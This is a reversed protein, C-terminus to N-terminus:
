EPWGGGGPSYLASTQLEQGEREELAPQPLAHPLHEWLLACLLGNYPLSLLAGCVFSAIALPCFYWWKRLVQRLDM